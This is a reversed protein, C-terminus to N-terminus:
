PCKDVVAGLATFWAEAVKNYGTANPHLAIGTFAINESLDDPYTLASRQDVIIIDDGGAIRTQAMTTVNTNFTTVYAEIPNRDIILALLVTVHNGNVSSEWDAIENLIAEIHTEDTFLLENTGAHLLIIDAPNNDLWVRVGDTPYGPYGPFPGYAIEVATWGERGEHQSDSFLNNGHLLSGVFDFTYGAGNLSDYLSKRYGIIDGAPALLSLYDGADPGIWEEGMTISDGLPMIKQDVIVTETASSFAGDLDTVRYDFSDLGRKDGAGTAPQYVFDGTSTNIAVTGGKATLIPGAGDSGGAGLGYTLMEAIDPDIAGLTGNLTVAQPTTECSGIAVPPDNVPTITLSVTVTNSTAGSQDDITYTFSDATTESGNHTYDVTGDTNVVLPSGNGPGSIIAISTLDLANDADSDNVALDLTTSISGEAVTFNDAVAVPADNVPTITLNVTVTNSTAGAEDDITYTFSDALPTESDDHTYDVTGNTNVVLSGNGPVSVAISTLDLANDVDSDNTSLDLNTTSGEDVTFNDTVAVPPYNIDNITVTITATNSISIGDFATFTFSDSGIAGANPTYTYAGTMGNTITATGKSGNDNIPISYSIGPGDADNAVLVGIGVTDEDTNLAGDLAVPADNVPTITLNVTVTNSTAGSIDDITYTFSDTLPTESGDHTYDVTGNANVVLSGNGPVSVAISSLDLGDDADSDNAALDLTTTSGEDVGMTFNDAVAIPADNVPTITLTVAATNSTAGSQDDITYTFSDASTESGGHAYAVTGDTNVVLTGNGPTSIVAISSLDLGGDTDSDNTALNLTATSGEAVVYNDAQAVPAVPDTGGGGGGGGCSALASAAFLLVALRTLARNAPLHSCPTPNGSRMLTFRFARLKQEM